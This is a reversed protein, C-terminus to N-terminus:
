NNSAQSEEGDCTEPYALPHVANHLFNQDMLIFPSDRTLPLMFRGNCQSQQILYIYVVMQAIVYMYAYM